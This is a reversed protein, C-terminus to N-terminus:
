EGRIKQIEEKILREAVEPLVERVMDRITQRAVSEIRPELWARIAEAMVEPAVRGLEQERLRVIEERILPEAIRPLMARVWQRVMERTSEPFVAATTMGALVELDRSM